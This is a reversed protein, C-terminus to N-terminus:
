GKPEYIPSKINLPIFFSSSRSKVKPSSEQWSAGLADLAFLGSGASSFIREARGDTWYTLGRSVGMGFLDYAEEAYPDFSWKQEGTAADLAFVKLAPSSAYLIGDIILPNCQIQTRNQP